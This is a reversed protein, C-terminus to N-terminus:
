HKVKREMEKQEHKEIMNKLLKMLSWDLAPVTGLDIKAGNEVDQMLMMCRRLV